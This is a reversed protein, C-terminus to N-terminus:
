LLPIFLFDCCINSTITINYLPAIKRSFQFIQKDDLRYAVEGTGPQTFCWTKGKLILSLAHNRRSHKMVAIWTKGNYFKITAM